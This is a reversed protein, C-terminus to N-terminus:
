VSGGLASRSLAVPEPSEGAMGGMRGRSVLSPGRLGGGVGQRAIWVYECSLHRLAGSRAVFRLPDMATRPDLRIRAEPGTV